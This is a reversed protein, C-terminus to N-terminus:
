LTYIDQRSPAPEFDALLSEIRRRADEDPDSFQVGIGAHRGNSAGSPTIWVVTGALPVNGDLEACRLLVFVEDGFSFEDSTPIFLGGNVLFPMYAADLANKDEITVSLLNKASQANM